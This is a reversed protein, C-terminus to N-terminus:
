LRASQFRAQYILGRCGPLLFGLM